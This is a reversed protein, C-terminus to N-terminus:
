IIIELDNIDYKIQCLKNISDEEDKEIFNNNYKLNLLEKDIDIIYSVYIQLAEKLYTNLNTTNYLKINENINNIYNNKEIIKSNITSLKEKNNITNEYAFLLNGYEENITNLDKKLYEFVEVAKDEEIHKFIYNLKNITVESKKTNLKKRFDLIRDLINKCYIKNIEINLDCPSDINGCRAVLKTNTESFLTGGIKSCNVCIKKTKAFLKKKVELLNDSNLLKNKQTEIKKYYKQKLSYYKAIEELYKNYSDNNKLFNIKEM